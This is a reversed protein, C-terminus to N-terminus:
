CLLCFLRIVKFLVQFTINRVVSMGEPKFIDSHTMSVFVKNDDHPDSDHDTLNPILHFNRFTVNTLITQTYTDYFEFGQHPGLPPTGSLPNATRGVVLANGLWSKGFMM